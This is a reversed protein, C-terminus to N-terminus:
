RNCRFGERIGKLASWVPHSYPQPSLEFFVALRDQDPCAINTVRINLSLMEGTVFPDFIKANGQYDCAPDADPAALRVEYSAGGTDLGRDEAVVRTLGSFYTELSSALSDPGIISDEPIWWVFAYTWFDKSDAKFMGPAFRLEELGEYKLEPAFDLPFPITETRWGDPVPMSFPLPAAVDEQAGVTAPILLATILFIRFTM